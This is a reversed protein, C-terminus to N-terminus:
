QVGLRGELEKIYADRAELDAELQRNKALLSTNDTIRNKRTNELIDHEEKSLYGIIPITGLSVKADIGFNDLVYDKFFDMAVGLSDKQEPPLAGFDTILCMREYSYGDVLPFSELYTSLVYVPPGLRPILSIVATEDAIGQQIVSPYDAEALGVPKFVRDYININLGQMEPLTRIAEVTYFTNPNVVRDYPPIAVFKGAARLSPIINKEAM